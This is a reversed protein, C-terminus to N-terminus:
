LTVSRRRAPALPPPLTGPTDHPGPSTHPLRPGWTPYHWGDPLLNLESTYSCLNRSLVCPFLPGMHSSTVPGAHPLFCTPFGLQGARSSQPGRRTETTHLRGAGPAKRDRFDGPKEQSSSEMVEPNSDEHSQTEVGRPIDLMLVSVLWAIGRSPLVTRGTRIQTWFADLTLPGPGEQQGRHLLARQQRRTRPNTRTWTESVM